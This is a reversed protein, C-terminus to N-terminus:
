DLSLLVAVMVTFAKGVVLENVALVAVLQAPSLTVNVAAPVPAAEYLKSLPLTHCVAVV